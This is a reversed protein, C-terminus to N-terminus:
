IICLSDVWLYRIPLRRTFVVADLFTKPLESELIGRKKLSLLIRPRTSCAMDLAGAIARVFTVPEKM